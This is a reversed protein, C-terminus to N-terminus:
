MKHWWMEATEAKSSQGTTTVSELDPKNWERVIPTFVAFHSAKKLM